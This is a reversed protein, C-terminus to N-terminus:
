LEQDALRALIALHRSRLREREVLHRVDSGFALDGVYVELAQTYADIAGTRDGVEALRDGRKATADFVSVDGDVGAETNLRYQGERVLVAPGGTRADRRPPRV